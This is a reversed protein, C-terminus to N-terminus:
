KILTMLYHYAYTLSAFLTFLSEGIPCQRRSEFGPWVPWLRTSVGIRQCKQEGTIRRISETTKITVTFSVSTAIFSM